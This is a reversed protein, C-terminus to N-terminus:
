FCGLHINEGILLMNWKIFESDQSASFSVNRCLQTNKAMVM